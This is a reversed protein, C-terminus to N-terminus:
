DHGVEETEFEEQAILQELVDPGSAPHLGLGHLLVAKACADREMCAEIPPLGRFLEVPTIMWGLPDVRLGDRQMRAGTEAAVCAIRVISVRDVLLRGGTETGLPDLRWEVAKIRGALSDTATDTATDHM